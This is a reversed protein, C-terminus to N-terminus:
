LLAAALHRWEERSVSGSGETLVQVCVHDAGAAHHAAIRAAVDDVDGWAVVSDVLRDSGGDTFDEDDFGFKRLNSVYNSLSLYFSTTKRAIQRARSPDRELVVMQEPALLPGDGLLERAAATHEIPAFYPHAGGARDAALQLMKPGLAALVRQSPDAKLDAADLEDLFSRMAALPKGWAGKARAEPHSVGLGLLFRGPHDALLRRNLEATEVPDSGFIGIIGTAVTIRQSHDLLERAIPMQEATVTGAFWLAGWGPRRSTPWCM